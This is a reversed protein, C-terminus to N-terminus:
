LRKRKASILLRAAASVLRTRGHEGAGSRIGSGTVIKEIDTM